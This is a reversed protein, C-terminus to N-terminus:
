QVGPVFRVHQEQSSSYELRPLIITNVEMDFNQEAESTDEYNDTLALTIFGEFTTISAAMGEVASSSREFELESM